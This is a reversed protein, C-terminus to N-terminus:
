QVGTRRVRISLTHQESEGVSYFDLGEVVYCRGPRMMIVHSPELLLRDLPPSCAPLELLRSVAATAVVGATATSVILVNEIILEGTLEM